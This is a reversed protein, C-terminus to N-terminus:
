ARDSIAKAAALAELPSLLVIMLWLPVAVLAGVLRMAWRNTQLATTRQSVGTTIAQMLPGSFSQHMGNSESFRQTACESKHQPQNSSDNCLRQSIGCRRCFKDREILEAGCSHCQKLAVTEILQPAFM